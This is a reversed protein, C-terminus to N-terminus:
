EGVGRGCPLDAYEVDAAVPDPEIADAVSEVGEGIAARV